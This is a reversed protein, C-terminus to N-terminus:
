SLSLKNDSIFAYGDIVVTMERAAVTGPSFTLPNTTCSSVRIVCPYLADVRIQAKTGGHGGHENERLKRIEPAEVARIEM